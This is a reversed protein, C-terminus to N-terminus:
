REEETGVPGIRLAVGVGGYAMVPSMRLAVVRPGHGVFDTFVINARVPGIDREPVFVWERDPDTPEVGGRDTVLFEEPSWAHVVEDAPGILTVRGTARGVAGADREMRLFEADLDDLQPSAEPGPERLVRTLWGACFAALALLAYNM